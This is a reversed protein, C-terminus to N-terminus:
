APLHVHEEGELDNFKKRMIRSKRRQNRLALLLVLILLAGVAAIIATLDPM